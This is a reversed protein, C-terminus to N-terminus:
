KYLRLHIMGGFGYHQVTVTGASGAGGHGEVLQPSPYDLFFVSPEGKWNRNTHISNSHIINNNSGLSQANGNSGNAGNISPGPTGGDNGTDGAIGAGGLGGGAGYGLGICIQTENQVYGSGGSVITCSDIAGSGNVNATILAGTGGAGAGTLANYNILVRCPIGTLNPTNGTSGPTVTVATIVGSTVTAVATAPTLIDGVWRNSSTQGLSTTGYHSGGPGNSSSTVWGRGIIYPISTITSMEEPSVTGVVMGGHGGTGGTAALLSGSAVHGTGGRGGAGVITYEMWSVGAPKTWTGVKYDITEARDQLIFVDQYYSSGGSSATGWEPATAGANMVLAQGATGKGLRIYNTGDYYLVDGAADSGMAIKTGDVANDTIVYDTIKQITM